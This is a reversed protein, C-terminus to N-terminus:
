LICPFPPSCKVWDGIYKELLFSNNKPTNEIKAILHLCPRTTAPTKTMNIREVLGTIVGQSTRAFINM